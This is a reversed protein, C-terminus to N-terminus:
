AQADVADVANADAVAAEGREARLQKLEEVERPTRRRAVALAGIVAVLLTVSIIEFPVAAQRFLADGVSEVTGFGEPVAGVPVDYHGVAQTFTFGVMTMFILSFLRAMLGKGSREVAAEPGILMIVFVFLVVVAGAYVLLQIAALLEASLSLYLGALAIIHVLLGVAARLPRKAGATVIAGLFAFAACVLFFVNSALSTM